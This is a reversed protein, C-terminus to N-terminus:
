DQIYAYDIFAKSRECEKKYEEESINGILYKSYAISRMHEAKRIIIAPDAPLFRSKAM